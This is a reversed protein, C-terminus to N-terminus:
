CIFIVSQSLVHILVKKKREKLCLWKSSVAVSIYAFARETFKQTRGTAFCVTIYKSMTKPQQM